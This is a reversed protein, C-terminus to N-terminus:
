AITSMHIDSIERQGRGRQVLRRGLIPQVGSPLSVARRGRGRGRGRGTTASGTIELNKQKNIEKAASQLITTDFDLPLSPIRFHSIHSADRMQASNLVKCDPHSSHEVVPIVTSTNTREQRLFRSGTPKCGYKECEHQTNVTCIFDKFHCHKNYYSSLLRLVNSVDFRMLTYHNFKSLQPMRLRESTGTIDLKQVLVADAKGLKYADSDVEQLIEEVLVIDYSDNHNIIVTQGPRCIDGNHIVLGKGTKFLRTPGVTIRSEEIKQAAKMQSFPRADQGDTM